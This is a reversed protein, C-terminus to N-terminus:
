SKKTLRQTSLVKSNRGVIQVVYLGNPLDTIDYREDKKVDFIRMKKGTLNYIFINRVGEEHSVSIFDTAPNPFVALTTMDIKKESQASVVGIAFLLFVYILLNKKM